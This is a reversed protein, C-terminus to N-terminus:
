ENKQEEDIDQWTIRRSVLKGNKLNMTANMRQQWQSHINFNQARGAEELAYAGAGFPKMTEFDYLDEWRHTVIGELSINNNHRKATFNGESKLFSTGSSLYEDLDGRLFHSRSPELNTIIKLPLLGIEYDWNDKLNISHGPKLKLLQSGLKETKSFSRNFRERNSKEADRIFDKKRVEAADLIRVPGSKDLFYELNEAAKKYGYERGTRVYGRYTSEVSDLFEKENYDPSVKKSQYERVYTKIQRENEKHAYRNLNESIKDLNINLGFFKTFSM